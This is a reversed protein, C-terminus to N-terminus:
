QLPPAGAGAVAVAADLMSLARASDARNGGRVSASSVANRQARYAHAIAPGDNAQRALETGLEFQRRATGLDDHKYAALGALVAAESGIIQLPRLVKAPASQIIAMLRSQHDGLLPLLSSPSIRWYWSAFQNTIQRLEEIRTAAAQNSLPRFFEFPATAGLGAALSFERRNMEELELAARQAEAAAGITEIPLSLALALWRVHMRGPTVQGARWKCVLQESARSYGGDKASARRILQSLQKLTISRRTMEQSILEALVMGKLGTEPDM